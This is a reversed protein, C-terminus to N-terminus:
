LEGQLVYSRRLREMWVLDKEEATIAQVVLNTPQCVLGSANAFKVFYIRTWHLNSMATPNGSGWTETNTTIFTGAIQQNEVYTRQEAYIVQMLDVTSGLFGPTTMPNLFQSGCEADTLARTTLLDFEVVELINTALSPLQSKQVDVGQTFTTLDQQSWGTLDIKTRYTYSAWGAAAAVIQATWEKTTTATVLPLSGGSVTSTCTVGPAQKYLQHSKENKM